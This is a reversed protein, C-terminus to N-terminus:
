LSGWFETSDIKIDCLVELAKGSIKYVRARHARLGEVLAGPDIGPGFAIPKISM